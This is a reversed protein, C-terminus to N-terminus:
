EEDTQLEINIEFPYEDGDNTSQRFLQTHQWAIDGKGGTLIATITFSENGVLDDVSHVEDDIFFLFFFDNIPLGKPTNFM